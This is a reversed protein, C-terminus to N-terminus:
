WAALRCAPQHNVVLWISVRHACGCAYAVERQQIGAVRPMRVRRHFVRYVERWSREGFKYRGRKEPLRWRERAAWSWLYDLKSAENWAASVAAIRALTHADLHSLILALVDADILEAVALPAGHEELTDSLIDAM